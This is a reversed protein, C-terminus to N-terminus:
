LRRLARAILADRWRDPLWELLLRLRADRGILYRTRPRDATLAREIREAVRAAPLGDIGQAAQKQVARLQPGYYTDLEAPASELAALGTEISTEWIPTAIIGPEILIVHIGSPRLEVRLADALAELAHKSACYPGVFPLASLGAISSVFVIRGRARRLAPLMAQAVAVQGIVNVELQTRLRELPLFELPGAVAIGANDVLADLGTDGLDAEIRRVLNGIDKADTVDLRVPEVNALAALRQGDAAARFGAYVRWGRAALHEATAEGIGKSAGTVLVSRM